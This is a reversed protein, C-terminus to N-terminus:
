EIIKNRAIWASFTNAVEESLKVRSTFNEIGIESADVVKNNQSVDLMNNGKLASNKFTVPVGYEGASELLTYLVPSDFIENLRYGILELSKAFELKSDINNYAKNMAQFINDGIEGYRAPNGGSIKYNLYTNENVNKLVMPSSWFILDSNNSSNYISIIISDM